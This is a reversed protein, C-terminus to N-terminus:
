ASVNARFKKFVDLKFKKGIGHDWHFEKNLHVEEGHTDNREKSIVATRESMGQERTFIKTVKHRGGASSADGM